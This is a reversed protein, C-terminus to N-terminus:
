WVTRDVPCAASQSVDDVSIPSRRRARAGRPDVPGRPARLHSAAISLPASQPPSCAGSGIVVRHHLLQDFCELRLVHAALFTSNAVPQIFALGRKSLLLHPKELEVVKLSPPCRATSLHRSFFMVVTCLKLMAHFSAM